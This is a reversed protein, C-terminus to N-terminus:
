NKPLAGMFEAIVKAAANRATTQVDRTLDSLKNSNKTMLEKIKPVLTNTYNNLLENIIAHVDEKSIGPSVSNVKNRLEELEAMVPSQHFDNIVQGSVANNTLRHKLMSSKVMSMANEYTESGVAFGDVPLDVASYERMTWTDYLIMNQEDDWKPKGIPKIFKSWANMFGNKYLNYIDQAEDLDNRFETEGGLYNIDGDKETFVKNNKGIKYKLSEAVSSAGFFGAGGHEFLVIPNLRFMKDEYKNPYLLQRYDNVQDSSVYHRIIHKADDTEMFSHRFM